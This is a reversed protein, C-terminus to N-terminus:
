HRWVFPQSKGNNAEVRQQLVVWRYALMKLRKIIKFLEQYLIKFWFYIETLIRSSLKQYFIGFHISQYFQGMFIFHALCYAREGPKIVMCPLKLPLSPFSFLFPFLVFALYRKVCQFTQHNGWCATLSALCVKKEFMIINLKWWGLTKKWVNFDTTLEGHWLYKRHSRHATEWENWSYFISLMLNSIVGM